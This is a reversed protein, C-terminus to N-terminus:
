IESSLDTSSGSERLGTSFCNILALSCHIDVEDILENYLVLILLYNKNFKYCLNLTTCQYVCCYFIINYM